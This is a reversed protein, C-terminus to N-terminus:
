VMANEAWGYFFTHMLKKNIVNIIYINTDIYGVEKSGADQRPFMLNFGRKESTLRKATCGPIGKNAYDPIEAQHQPICLSSFAKYQGLGHVWLDLPHAM